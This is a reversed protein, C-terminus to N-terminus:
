KVEYVINVTLSVETEGPSISTSDTGRGAQSALPIAPPVSGTSESISRVNGVEVGAQRALQDARARADAIAKARAENQFREPQDVTFSVGNVRMADGGAAIAADLTNSIADIKRVKVTM